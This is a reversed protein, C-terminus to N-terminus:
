PTKRSQKQKNVHLNENFEEKRLTLQRASGVSTSNTDGASGDRGLWLHISYPRHRRDSQPRDAIGVRDCPRCRLGLCEADVNRPNCARHPM